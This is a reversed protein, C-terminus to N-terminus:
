SRIAAELHEDLARHGTIAAIKEDSLAHVNGLHEALRRPGTLQVGCSPCVTKAREPIDVTAVLRRLEALEALAASFKQELSDFLTDLDRRDVTM